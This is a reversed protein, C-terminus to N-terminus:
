RTTGFRFLTQHVYTDGPRLVISPFSPQNPADPFRQTELALGAHPGYGTFVQVGPETTWVDLTRGTTPAHVEAALHLAQQSDAQLVFTHDYGNVRALQPDATIVEWTLRDGLRTPGRFDFPTGAVPRVEGTPISTADTPLYASAPVCLIHDYVNGSPGDLNFYAHHTVNVLTPADTTARVDLALVDDDSLAYTVTVDLAGPYGEEGAPSTLTLVVGASSPTEFPEADWRRLHFGQEGGHLHNPGDNVPLQYTEGDLVFRGGAIRNAVRGVLAGVCWPNDLYTDLDDFGLTVEGLAGNRDRTQVSRLLAGFDSVQVTTGHANRLTFLTATSGDPLTGWPASSLRTSM